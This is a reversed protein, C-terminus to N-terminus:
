IARLSKVSPLDWKTNTNLKQPLEVGAGLDLATL